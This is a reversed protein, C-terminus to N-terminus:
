TGDVRFVSKPTITSLQSGDLYIYSKTWTPVAGTFETYESLTTGGNSAFIKLYGYQYDLDMLRANTSGYQFAQLMTGDTQKKIVRLRNAADYEFKIQNGDQDFGLTQNGASDYSFGSSTIRNNTSDYTLNPIGDLPIPTNNAAVGSATVNTRNGYRDYSYNQQWLNGTSGGKAKTLRGLADFEYERNKNNDLNNIIKTLHGTKGNLNGVANNRNYDYSLDLLTQGSKQVKQNTLLGTQSDFTYNETVQNTGAAGIKISTTQDAANYVINGAVETNDVKLSTLRSAVDYSNQVLKRPNGALGYAHCRSNFM